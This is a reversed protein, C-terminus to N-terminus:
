HKEPVYALDCKMKNGLERENIAGKVDDPFYLKKVEDTQADLQKRLEDLLRTTFVSAADKQGASAAGGKGTAYYVQFQGEIPELSSLGKTEVRCCDLIMVVMVNPMATIGMGFTKKPEEELVYANKDKCTAALVASFPREDTCVICTHGKKDIIGHGSYYIFVLGREPNDPDKMTLDRAWERAKQFMTVMDERSPNFRRDISTPEFHCYKSLFEEVHLVDKEPSGLPDFGETGRRKYDTNGILIAKKKTPLFRDDLYTKIKDQLVDVVTFSLSNTSVLDAYELFNL